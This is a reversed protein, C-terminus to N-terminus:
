DDCYGQHSGLLSVKQTCPYVPLGATPSILASFSGQVPFRHTRSGVSTAIMSCLRVSVVQKVMGDALTM